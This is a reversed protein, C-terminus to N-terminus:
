VAFEAHDAQMGISTWQDFSDYIATGPWPPSEPPSRTWTLHVVAVRETGDEIAYLVDDRDQRRGIARVPLGFLAHDPSLERRLEHAMGKSQEPDEAISYWPELWKVGALRAGSAFLM